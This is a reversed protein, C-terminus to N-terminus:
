RGDDAAHEIDSETRHERIICLGGASVAIAGDVEAATLLEVGRAPVVREEDTHNLIWLYTHAGARRHVIELGDGAVDASPSVGAERLIRGLHARLSADDLRTSIYHVVGEDVRRRTIAPSGAPLVAHADATYAAVVEADVAHLVESWAEGRSGDDLTIRRGTHMPVHEEVRIGALGAFAAAFSGTRVRLHEDTTGALFWLALHGGARVFRAFRDAQADSVPILSPALVVDYGSLDEDPSVFDVTHGALWLAEHVATVAPLFAIDDSPLARTESAWWADASWVIAVRAEVVRGRAPTRALEALGALEAGLEAIERFGRSDAGVHPVMASHFFEAGVLPARWQFFLSGFSGRALYQHTNRRMRGPAKPVFRGAAYDYTLSTAQEMLLWPRGGAFSRALDAGFAVQAEGRPGIDSPYHDICVVDVEAAFAWGDYNNWTPLIFNTTLPVAPALERLIRAQDRFCALLLDASFRRFDLLQSPNPLYQTRQPAHIDDWEGYGQSWFATNWTANVTDLDGYRERLWARFARDTEPGYSLTGYENHVHWLALAPHGGYREALVRTIREAAARYAPAAPNYTDRSGHLLRVGDATVPLAEPHLRSFWPPPSATPTALIVRVGAAHLRDMAEDLWAFRYEGPSPELSSWAFVGVTATDVRARRMLDIDEARTAEDWQEPNYDGGFWLGEADLRLTEIRSM